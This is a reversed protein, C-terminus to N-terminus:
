CPSTERGSLVAQGHGSQDANRQLARGGGSHSMRAARRACQDPKVVAGRREKQEPSPALAPDRDGTYILQSGHGSM